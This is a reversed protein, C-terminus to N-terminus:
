YKEPKILRIIKELEECIEECIEEALIDRKIFTVNKNILIVLDDLANCIREEINM